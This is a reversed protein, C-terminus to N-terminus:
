QTAVIKVSLLDGLQRNNKDRWVIRAVRNELFHIEYRSGRYKKNLRDLPSVPTYDVVVGEGEDVPLTKFAVGEMSLMTVVQFSSDGADIKVVKGDPQTQLSLISLLFIMGATIFILKNNRSRSGERIDM